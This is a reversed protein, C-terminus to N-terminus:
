HKHEIRNQYIHTLKMFIQRDTKFSIFMVEASFHLPCVYILVVAYGAVMTGLKIHPRKGKYANKM